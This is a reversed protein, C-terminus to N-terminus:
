EKAEQLAGDPQSPTKDNTLLVSYAGKKPRESDWKRHCSRCLWRVDLPRDYDYHAAEIVCNKKGCKECIDSRIIRGTNVYYRLLNQARRAQVTAVTRRKRGTSQARVKCEMSCFKRKLHSVPGFEQGCQKCIKFTQPRSNNRCRASCFIQGSSSSEFLKQCNPCKKEIKGNCDKCRSSVIRRRYDIYFNDRTFVVNCKSCKKALYESIQVM